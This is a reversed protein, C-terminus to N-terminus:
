PIKCRYGLTEKSKQMHKEFEEIQRLREQLDIKSAFEKLIIDDLNENLFILDDLPLVDISGHETIMQCLHLLRNTCAHATTAKSNISTSTGFSDIISHATLSEVRQQKKENEHVIRILMNPVSTKQDVQDSPQTTLPISKPKINKKSQNAVQLNTSRPNPKASLNINAYQNSAVSNRNKKQQVSSRKKSRKNAAELSFARRCTNPHQKTPSMTESTSRIVKKKSFTKTVSQSRTSVARGHTGTTRCSTQKTLHSKRNQNLLGRTATVSQLKEVVPKPRPVIITKNVLSKDRKSNKYDVNKRKDFIISHNRLKESADISSRLLSPPKRQIQRQVVMSSHKTKSKTVLETQSAAIVRADEQGKISIKSGRLVSNANPITRKKSTLSLDQRNGKFNPKMETSTTVTARKNKSKSANRGLTEIKNAPSSISREVTSKTIPKNQSLATKKVAVQSKSAVLGSKTQSGEKQHSQKSRQIEFTAVQEQLEHAEQTLREYKLELEINQQLKKDLTEIETEYSLVARKLQIKELNVKDKELQTQVLLNSALTCRQCETHSLNDSFNEDVNANENNKINADISVKAATLLQNKQEIEHCLIEITQKQEDNERQWKDNEQRLRLIEIQYENDHQAITENQMVEREPIDTEATASSGIDCSSEKSLNSDTQAAVDKTEVLTMSGISVVSPAPFCNREYLIQMDIRLEGLMFELRKIQEEEHKSKDFSVKQTSVESTDGLCSVCAVALDLHNDVSNWPRKHQATTTSFRSRLHHVDRSLIGGVHSVNSASFYNQTLVSM